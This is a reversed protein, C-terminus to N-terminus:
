ILSQIVCRWYSLDSVCWIVSFTCHLAHISYFWLPLIKKYNTKSDSNLDQKAGSQGMSQSSKIPTTIMDLYLVKSLKWLLFGVLPIHSCPLCWSTCVLLHDSFRSNKTIATHSTKKKSPQHNSHATKSFKFFTMRPLHTFNELNEIMNELLEVM